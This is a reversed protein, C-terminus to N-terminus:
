LKTIKLVIDASVSDTGIQNSPNYQGYVIVYKKDKKFTGTIGANRGDCDDNYNVNYINLESSDPDIVYLYNDYDSTLSIKYNGDEPVTWTVMKSYNTALYSNFTYNPYTNLNYFNEFQNMNNADNAQVGYVPAIALRTEGSRSSSYMSVKLVYNRDKLLYRYILSNLRYGDDDDSEIITTGDPEYLYVKVDSSGFTQILKTGDTSFSINFTWCTGESIAIKKELYRLNGFSISSIAKSPKDFEYYQSLYPGSTTGLTDYSKVLVYYKKGQAKIISNWENQNPTYSLSSVMATTLILNKNSDYFELIFTDNSFNYTKSNFYLDSGSTSWSFTPRYAYNDDEEVNLYVDKSSFNFTELLLGLDNRSFTFDCDYLAGIFEYFFEPNYAVMITWLQSEPITMKDTISNSDDWLQYLFHMITRETTEGHSSFANLTYNLGNYSEYRENAVYKITKLDDPFAFQSVISYFTPWSESWALGMGQKKAAYLDSDYNANGKNIQDNFYGTIDSTSSSHSGYYDHHFYLKQLHHGYEHGIVDWSEHVSPYTDSVRKNENPLTITSKSPEYYAGSSNCPYKINCIEINSGGNLMSAHDAFNKAATFIDMSNCLDTGKLFTYSYNYNDDNNMGNLRTAHEYVTGSENTVKIMENEAYVHIDCEYAWATWIGNFSISYFGSSNTYTSANGWSGTFTLKVKAGVLPHIIGNDDTWKLYGYVRGNAIVRNPGNKNEDFDPTIGRDEAETLDNDMYAQGELNGVLYKASDLSLTSLGIQNLDNKSYFLTNSSSAGNTFKASFNVQGQKDDFILNINFINKSLNTIKYSGFYDLTLTEIMDNSDSYIQFNASDGSRIDEVGFDFSLNNRKTEDNSEDQKYCKRSNIVNENEEIPINKNIILNSSFVLFVMGFICSLKLLIGKM